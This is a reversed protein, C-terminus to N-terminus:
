SPIRGSIPIWAWHRSCRALAKLADIQSQLQAATAISIWATDDTQLAQRQQELLATPDAGEEYTRKWDDFTGILM